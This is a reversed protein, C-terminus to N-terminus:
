AAELITEIVAEIFIQAQIANIANGYARLRGVRSAAGNVLPFSGPEVPRWKGDTCNIWEADRWFGNAEHAVAIREAVGGPGVTFEAPCEHLTSRGQSRADNAHAVWYLRDRINPAGVGASPFPVAGFAYDM